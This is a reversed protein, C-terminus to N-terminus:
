KTKPQGSQAWIRAQELLGDAACFVGVCVLSIPVVTCHWHVPCSRGHGITQMECPGTARVVCSSVCIRQGFDGASALAVM